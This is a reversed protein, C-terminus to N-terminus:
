GFVVALVILAAAVEVALLTVAAGIKLATTETGRDFTSMGNEVRVGDGM